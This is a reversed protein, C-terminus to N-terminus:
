SHIDRQLDAPKFLYSFIWIFLLFNVFTVYNLAMVQEKEHIIFITQWTHISSILIQHVALAYSSFLFLKRLTKQLFDGVGGLSFNFLFRERTLLHLVLSPFLFSLGFWFFPCFRLHSSILHAPSSFNNLCSLLSPIQWFSLDDDLSYM